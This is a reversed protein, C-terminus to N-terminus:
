RQLFNFITMILFYLFDRFNGFYKQLKKGGERLRFIFRFSEARKLNFEKMKIINEKWDGSECKPFRSDDYWEGRKDKFNNKKWKTKLKWWRENTNMM